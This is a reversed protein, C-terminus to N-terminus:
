AISFHVSSSDGMEQFFLLQEAATGFRNNSVNSSAWGQFFGLARHLVTDNM